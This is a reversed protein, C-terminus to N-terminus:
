MKTCIGHCFLQQYCVNSTEHVQLPQDSESKHPGAKSVTKMSRISLENTRTQANDKDIKVCRLDSFTVALYSQCQM